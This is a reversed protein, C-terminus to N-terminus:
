YVKPYKLLFRSALSETLLGKGSIRQGYDKDINLNNLTYAINNHGEDILYFTFILNM